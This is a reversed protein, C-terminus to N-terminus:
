LSLFSQKQRFLFNISLMVSVVWRQEIIIRSNAIKYIFLFWDNTSSFTFLGCVFRIAIITILSWMTVISISFISCSIIRGYYNTFSKRPMRLTWAYINNMLLLFFPREWIVSILAVRFGHKPLMILKKITKKKSLKECSFKYKFDWREKPEDAASIPYM